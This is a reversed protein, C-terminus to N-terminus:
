QANKLNNLFKIEISQSINDNTLIKSFIIDKYDM